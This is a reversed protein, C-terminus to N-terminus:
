DRFTTLMTPDKRSRTPWGRANLLDSNSCHPVAIIVVLSGSQLGPHISAATHTNTHLISYLEVSIWLPSGKLLGDIKRGECSCLMLCAEVLFLLRKALMGVDEIM